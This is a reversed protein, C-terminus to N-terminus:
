NSLRYINVEEAEKDFFFVLMPSGTQYLYIESVILNYRKKFFTIYSELRNNIDIFQKAFTHERAGLLTIVLNRTTLNDLCDVVEKNLPSCFDLFCFDFQNNKIVLSATTNHVKADPFIGLQLQYMEIDKQAITLNGYKICTDEVRLNIHSLTFSEKPKLEEVLDIVKDRIFDKKLNSFQSLLM